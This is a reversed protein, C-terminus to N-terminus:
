NEETVIGWIEERMADTSLWIHPEKNLIQGTGKKSPYLIIDGVKYEKVEKSVAIVEGKSLDAQAVGPIIIGSDDLTVEESPLPRAILKLGTPQIKNM